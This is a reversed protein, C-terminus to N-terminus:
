ATKTFVFQNNGLGHVTKQNQLKFDRSNFYSILEDPTAVEFPLGGIWDIWDHMVSMGREKKYQSFQNIGTLLSKLSTRLFFYPVCTSITVVRGTLGSCYLQKIKLWIDSLLGQDNYIAIFLKGNANVPISANELAEWMKGTHHLVGWSYVIDFKGLSQLYEKDLVSGREVKWEPDDPFFRSRLSETCAVSEPDYDFSHVRAGLRRAALSFLGSGSGIDLWTKGLLDKIGLMEQLSREAEIIREDDLTKLFGNWNKGFGFRQGATREQEFAANGQNKLDSM